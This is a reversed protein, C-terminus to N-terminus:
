GRSSVSRPAPVAAVLAVLREISPLGASPQLARRYARHVPPDNAELWLFAPKPGDYWRGRLAFYVPLLEALLAVRRYSALLRDPDRMRELMKRCWTREARLEDAPLPKPGRARARRVRTLLRHGYGAREVLVRGGHIRRLDAAPARRIWAETHVFLDVYAGRWRRSDHLNRGGRRIALVDYDSTPTAQGLARSGYLIVTHCRHRRVIDKTLRALDTDLIRM